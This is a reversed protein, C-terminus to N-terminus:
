TKGELKELLETLEELENKAAYIIARREQVTPTTWGEKEFRVRGAEDVEVLVADMPGVFLKM